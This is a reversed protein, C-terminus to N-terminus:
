VDCYKIVLEQIFVYKDSCYSGVCVPITFLTGLTCVTSATAAWVWAQVQIWDFWIIRCDRCSITCCPEQEDFDHESNVIEVLILFFM